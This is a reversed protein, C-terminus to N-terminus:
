EKHKAKPGRKQPVFVDPERGADRTITEQVYERDEDALFPRVKEEYVNIARIRSELKQVKESAM